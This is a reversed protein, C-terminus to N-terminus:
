NCVSCIDKCIRPAIRKSCVQLMMVSNVAANRHTEVYHFDQPKSDNQTITVEVEFTVPFLCVVPSMLPVWHLFSRLSSQGQDLQVLKISIDCNDSNGDHWEVSFDNDGLLKELMQKFHDFVKDADSTLTIVGNDSEFSILLSKKKQDAM